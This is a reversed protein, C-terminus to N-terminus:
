STYDHAFFVVAHIDQRFKSDWTSVDPDGLRQGARKLGGQFEDSFGDTRLGLFDYGTASLYLGALLEPEYPTTKRENFRRSQDLHGTASTVRDAFEHIFKKVENRTGKRFTLFIYVAAERGHSKLINGQLLKLEKAYTGLDAETLPKELSSLPTRKLPM